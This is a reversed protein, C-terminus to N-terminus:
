REEVGHALVPEEEPTSDQGLDHLYDPPTAPANTEEVLQNLRVIRSALGGAVAAEIDDESLRIGAALANSRWRALVAEPLTQM